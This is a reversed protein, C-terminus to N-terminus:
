ALAIQIKELPLINYYFSYVSKYLLIPINIKRDLLINM